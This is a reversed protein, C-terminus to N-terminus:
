KKSLFNLIHNDLNSPQSCWQRDNKEVAIAKEHRADHESPGINEPFEDGGEDKDGCAIALILLLRLATKHGFNILFVRYVM